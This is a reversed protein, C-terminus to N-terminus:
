GVSVGYHRRWLELMTLAFLRQTNGLGRQQAELLRAIFRRDFLAPDAEQLVDAVFRGWEGKFWADLPLSFGQKRRADFAPPLLRAALARLLVKRERRTARLRDPLRFAFEILRPDLWPARVELSALMSARDVKVLIDDVLYTEFDVRTAQQLVSHGPTCLEKKFAEPSRGAASAAPERRLLARRAAADFYINFQAIAGPADMGVGLLYNRGRVGVPLRAAGRRVARRLGPPLLHRMREQDQLWCYHPYGGFLEDGGDGGLAVTAHQRILRSILYTPVMSSDAMPEDYQEALRPLLDVTAPEAALEIHETGFHEAVLKAHATEDHAGHGPFGITFTRIARGAVRAAMATVLSSDLGGSLMVGVPVDAILRLRVSDQLLTEVQSLLEGEDPRVQGSAPADPLRWYRWVRARDSEVDYLLAHAQPLKRVGQLLCMDHPVYGFALYHELAAHDIRRPIGRDALLAKLESAFTLRRDAHVYFLPKEGARDRALLIRRAPADFLGFAFMGNLRSLCDPGWQEYAQLLVETDSATRFRRGAAELESRLERYNYIEGNFVVRTRESASVMPQRAEASLDIISLRRHGFAVQGTESRWLGSDDPGRHRLTERMMELGDGGSSSASSAFGVIGCM